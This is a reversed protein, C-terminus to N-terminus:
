KGRKRALQERGPERMSPLAPPLVLVSQRTSAAVARWVMEKCIHPLPITSDPSSQSGPDPLSEGHQSALVQLNREPANHSGSLLGHQVDWHPNAGDVCTHLGLLSALQSVASVHVPFEEVHGVSTNEGLPLYYERLNTCNPQQCRSWTM